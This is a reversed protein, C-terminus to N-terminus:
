AVVGVPGLRLRTFTGAKSREFSRGYILYTGDIELVEDIVRCLTNIQWNGGDGSSHGPARYHLQTGDHAMKEMLLRAHLAPSQSDNTMVQVMPKYFPFTADTRVKKNNVKGSSMGFEDHGQQQTIVTVQSYRKTIDRVLEGEMVNNGAGSKRCTIQSTAVGGTLPRGFVFTGDPLGYFMLGRSMAYTRLVEFVTMGPEIRSIKQPTDLFGALPNTVTQKKGKLKGVVNEQYVVQSRQIFPIKALLMEAVQKMTKGQITVFQECYSDVLLGMLDRGEVKLRVGSKDYSKTVRDIIGTLEPSNNVHLECRLGPSIPFEPNALELSFAHDAVYIDAEVSYSIFNEMRKKDVLLTVKDSM